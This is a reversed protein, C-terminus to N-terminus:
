YIKLSKLITQVIPLYKNFTNELANFTVIHLQNNKLFYNQLIKYNTTELKTHLDYTFLVHYSTNNGIIGPGEDVLEFSDICADFLDVFAMIYYKLSQQNLYIVPSSLM